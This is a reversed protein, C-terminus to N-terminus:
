LSSYLKPWSATASDANIAGTRRYLFSVLVSYSLCMQGICSVTNLYPIRSNPIFPSRSLLLLLPVQTRVGHWNLLLLFSLSLTVLSSVSEARNYWETRGKKQWMTEKSLILTFLSFLSTASVQSTFILKGISCLIQLVYTVIYANYSFWCM